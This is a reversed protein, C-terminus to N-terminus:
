RPRRAPLRKFALVLDSWPALLELLRAIPIALDRDVLPESWPHQVRRPVVVETRYWLVLGILGIAVLGVLAIRQARTM